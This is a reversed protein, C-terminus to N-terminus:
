ICSLVAANMYTQDGSEYLYTLEYSSYTAELTELVCVCYDYGSGEICSNIFADRFEMPYDDSSSYYQSSETSEPIYETQSQQDNPSVNSSTSDKQGLFVVVAIVAIVAGVVGFLKKNKQNGKHSMQMPAAPPQFQTTPPNQNQNQNLPQSSYEAPQGQKLPDMSIVPRGPFTKSGSASFAVGCKICFNTNTPSDQGCNSCHNM